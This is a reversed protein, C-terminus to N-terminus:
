LIRVGPNIERLNKVIEETYIGMRCIVTPTKEKAICFPDLVPLGVGYLYAGQKSKSNDLIATIKQPDLGLQFLYQSSFHAGYLYAKKIRKNVRLVDAKINNLMRKLRSAYVKRQPKVLEVGFTKVACVFISHNKYTEVVEPEFGNSWLFNLLGKQGLFYTHEFNLCLPPMLNNKTIYDMNPFSLLLKGGPTLLDHFKYLMARPDYFHELVHSLVVTDYKKDVSTNQDFYTKILSLKVDKRFYKSPNQEYVTWNEVGPGNVRSFLEGDPSGVELVNKQTSRRCFESFAVMHGQWTEGVMYYNHNNIYLDKPNM